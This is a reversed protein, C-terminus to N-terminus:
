PALQSARQGTKTRRIGLSTGVDWMCLYERKKEERRSTQGLERLSTVPVSLNVELNGAMDIYDQM